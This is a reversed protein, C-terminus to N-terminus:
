QRVLLGSVGWFDEIGQLVHALYDSAGVSHYVKPRQLDRTVLLHEKTEWPSFSPPICKNFHVTLPRTAAVRGVEQNPSFAALLISTMSIAHDRRDSETISSSALLGLTRYKEVLKRWGASHPSLQPDWSLLPLLVILIDKKTAEDAQVLMVASGFRKEFDPYLHHYQDSNRISDLVRTPLM